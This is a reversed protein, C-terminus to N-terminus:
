PAICEEAAKDERLRLFQPHRLRGHKTIGNAKVEIVKGLYWSQRTTLDVRQADDMGSCQGIEVLEGNQYASFKVAGIMGEFKGTKGKKAKTFGTIVVDYTKEAKMKKQGVGYKGWRSKVVLGEGGAAVIEKFYEARDGPVDAIRWPVFSIGPYSQSLEDVVDMAVIRREVRPLGRLDRGNYFLCDFVVYEAWGNVRQVDIARDSKSGMISQIYEFNMGPVVIEGDLVTYGYGKLSTELAMTVAYQIQPVNLGKETFLGTKKSLRRGTLYARDLDGGFHLLGRHGDIKVEAFVVEDPYVKGDCSPPKIQKIEGTM